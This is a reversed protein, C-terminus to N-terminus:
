LDHDSANLIVIMIGLLGNQIHSLLHEAPFSVYITERRILPLDQQELASDLCHRFLIIYHQKREIIFILQLIGLIKLNEHLPCLPSMKFLIHM